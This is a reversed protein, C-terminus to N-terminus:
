AFARDQRRAFRIQFTFRCAFISAQGKKHCYAPLGLAIAFLLSKLIPISVCDRVSMALGAGIAGLAIRVIFRAKM